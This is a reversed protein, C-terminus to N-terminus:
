RPSSRSTVRASAEGSTGCYRGGPGTRWLKELDEQSYWSETRQPVGAVGREMYMSKHHFEAAPKSVSLRRRGENGSMARAPAPSPLQTPGEVAAATRDGDVVASAAAVKVEAKERQERAKSKGGGMEM